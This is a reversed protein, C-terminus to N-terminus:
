MEFWLDVAADVNKQTIWSHRNSFVLHYTGPSRIAVDIKGVVASGSNYLPNVDLSAASWNRFDIDDFVMVYLDTGAVEDFSGELRPKGMDSTVVFVTDYYTGAAITVRGKVVTYSQPADQYHALQRELSQIQGAQQACPDVPNEESCGVALLLACMIVLPLIKRVM